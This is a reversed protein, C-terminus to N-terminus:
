VPCGCLSQSLPQQKGLKGKSPWASPCMPPSGPGQQAGHLVGQSPISSPHVSESGRGAGHWPTAAPPLPTHPGTGLPVFSPMKWDGKSLPSVPCMIDTLFRLNLSDLHMTRFGCVASSLGLNEAARSGTGAGAHCGERDAEVGAPM